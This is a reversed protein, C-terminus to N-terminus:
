SGSNTFFVSHDYTYLVPSFRVGVHRLEQRVFVKSDSGRLEAVAPWAHAFDFAEIENLAEPIFRGPIAVVRFDQFYHHPIPIVSEPPLTRLREQFMRVAFSGYTKQNLTQRFTFRSVFRQVVNLSKSNGSM